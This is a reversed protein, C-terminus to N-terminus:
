FEIWRRRELRMYLHRRQLNRGELSQALAVLDQQEVAAAAAGGLRHGAGQRLAPKAAHKDDLAAELHPALNVPQIHAAM